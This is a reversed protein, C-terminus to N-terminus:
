NHIDKHILLNPFASTAWYCACTMFLPLDAPLLVFFAETKHSRNAYTRLQLPSFPMEFPHHYHM